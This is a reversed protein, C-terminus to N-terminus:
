PIPFGFDVRPIKYSKVTSRFLGSYPIAMACATQIFIDIGISLWLLFTGCNEQCFQSVSAMCICM